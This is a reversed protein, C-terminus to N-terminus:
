DYLIIEFVTWDEKSTRIEGWKVSLLEEKSFCRGPNKIRLDGGTRIMMQRAVYLGLGKHGMSVKEFDM